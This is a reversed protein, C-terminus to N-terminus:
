SYCKNKEDYLHVGSGYEHHVRIRKYSTDAKFEVENELENITKVIAKLVSSENYTLEYAVSLVDINEIEQNQTNKSNEECLIQIFLSFLLLAFTM